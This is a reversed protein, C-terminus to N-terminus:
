FFAGRHKHFNVIMEEDSPLTRFYQAIADYKTAVIATILLIFINLIKHRFPQRGKEVNRDTM